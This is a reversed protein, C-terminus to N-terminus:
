LPQITLTAEHTFFIFPQDGAMRLELATSELPPNTLLVGSGDFVFSLEQVRDTISIFHKGGGFNYFKIGREDAVYDHGIIKKGAADSITMQKRDHQVILYSKDSQERVLSFQPGVYARMLTERSQIKGEPNFKVRYGDRTVVVFFTNAIDPGMELFYSGMPTGQIDLPSNGTSEGRRNYLYVQGDKRIAVIYDRGKIRHHRPPSMLEGGADNPAWGELNKGTKDYMWMKGNQETVMFRYRKSRDYDLISLHGIDKGELHLPYSPVYNGLRDVIHIADHTAFIYQLKGNNYFDIQSIDTTIRDGVPIRWLVRGEMSVLSVDNLSDQILIENAQSVHSRGAYLRQVPRGFYVTNRRPPTVQVVNTLDRSQRLTVNTYYTNNLHSFQYASMDISRLLAQNDRAFRRWKENLRPLMLNWMRPTNVFVSMSSELLTGELFQNKSVSKGWVDENEVDELFDKLEELNDGMFIVSGYSTYFTRDFGEVLPWFLKEAFRGAPIERITYDAFKEYFVTDESLRESLQNMQEIWRDSDKTEMMLVKAVRQGSMGELQCLGIEDSIDGFLDRWPVTLGASLRALSDQLHKRHRSTFRQLADSFAAGDTIGYTTFVLTRSPVMNRLSIPVPSQKRFLSLLYDSQASDTSFGNLVINDGVSKIDLLSSKGVAYRRDTGPLFLNTWQSFAKLQIYLNGVDGSIRPLGRMEPNSATFNRKKGRHTRIVDEILFPSFSGVWVDDILIWSFTQKDASVEHIRIESLERESYRYGPPNLLGSISQLAGKADPMYYVFDFDDRSTIHASILLGKRGKVLSQLQTLLSDPAKGHSAALSVIDWLPRKQIEEVCAECPDKEYVFVAAAPVLDWPRAPERNLIRDYVFYGAAGLLLM